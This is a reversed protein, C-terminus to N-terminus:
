KTFRPLSISRDVAIGKNSGVNGSKIVRALINTKDIKIIQTIVSDFDIRLLDGVALLEDPNVINLTINNKNKNYTSHTFNIISGIELYLDNNKINGTRLQAGETDPCITKDTWSKIKMITEEFDDIDVHSLNIRFIDVGTRDMKKVVDKSLSSPGLTAIILNESKL